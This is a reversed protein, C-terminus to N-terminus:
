RPWSRPASSFYSAPPRTPTGAKEHAKLQLKNKLFFSIPIDILGGSPAGFALLVILVGLYLFIRQRVSYSLTTPAIALSAVATAPHDTTM